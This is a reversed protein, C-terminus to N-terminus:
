RQRVSDMKKTDPYAKSMVLLTIDPPTPSTFIIRLGAAAAANVADYVDENFIDDLDDILIPNRKATTAERIEQLAKTANDGQIIPANVHAAIKQLIVSKGVGRGGSINTSLTGAVIREYTRPQLIVDPAAIHSSPIM